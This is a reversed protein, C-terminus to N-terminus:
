IKILVRALDTEMFAPKIFVRKFVNAQQEQLTQVTGVILGAPFQDTGKTVITDYVEIVDGQVILDFLLGNGIAGRVIGSTERGLVKAVVSFEPNTPVRITAVSPRVETVMGILVGRSSFVISGVRVGDREGRNLLLASEDFISANSFVSGDITRERLDKSLGLESRLFENEKTLAETQALRAILATNELRLNTNEQTLQGTTRLSDFLLRARNSKEFIYGLPRRMVSAMGGGLVNHFLFVNAAWVAVVIVLIYLFWRFSIRRM